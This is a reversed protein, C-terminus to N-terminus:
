PLIQAFSLSGSYFVDMTHAEAQFRICTFSHSLDTINTYNRICTPNQKFNRDFLKGKCPNKQVQAM